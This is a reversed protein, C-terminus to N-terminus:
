RARARARGGRHRQHQRHDRRRESAPAAADAELAALVARAIEADPPRRGTRAEATALAAFVDYVRIALAALQPPNRPLYDPPFSARHDQLFAAAARVAALDDRDGETPLEFRWRRAQDEILSRLGDENPAIGTAPFVRCDYDRCTQPRHAYISCAQDIWMPCEGRENYGLLVHGPPAGPAPFVLARPIRALAETEDPRIHIFYSSRCCGSCTGCPVDAGLVKLQQSRRTTRLWASFPGATQTTPARSARPARPESTV